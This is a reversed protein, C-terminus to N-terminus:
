DLRNDDRDFDILLIMLRNAYKGMAPIHDSIFRELVARWGGAVPDIQIQRQRNWDLEPRFGNALQRNADDEPLVLVHPRNKNASV